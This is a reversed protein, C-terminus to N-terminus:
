SRGEKQVSAYLVTEMTYANYARLFFRYGLGWSDLLLPIDWIHNVAHYTCVALDPRDCRILNQAGRVASLEAGEIDMKIMTPHFDPIAMDLSVTQVRTEGSACLAGSGTGASFGCMEARGGVACPFLFRQGIRGRLRALTEVMVAYNRSSPEFVACAEVSDTRRLLNRVTDGTYGGCDVFRRFGKSLPVDTPFYQEDLPRELQRCGSYDGTAHAYVTQGYLARSASDCFLALAAEIKGRRSQYYVAPSEDLRDDPRVLLARLAQGELIFPYGLRRLWSLVQQRRELDMVVCFLVASTEMPFPAEEARYVPIGEREGIAAANQDLFAAAPFGAERLNYLMEVGFGGAGYLLLTKGRLQELAESFSRERPTELGLSIINDM